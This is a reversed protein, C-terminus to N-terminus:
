NSEPKPSEIKDAEKDQKPKEDKAPKKDEKKPASPKVPAPKEVAIMFKDNIYQTSEKTEGPKFTIGYFTKAFSAVNKYFM